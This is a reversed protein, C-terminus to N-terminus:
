PTNVVLGASEMVTQLDPGLDLGLCRGVFARNIANILELNAVFPAIDISPDLVGLIFGNDTSFSGHEFTPVHVQQAEDSFQGWAQTLWSPFADTTLVLHKGPGGKQASSGFLHGDQNLGCEVETMTTALETALSGGYSHGFAAVPGWRASTDLYEGQLVEKLAVRADQQMVDFRTELFAIQAAEGAAAAAAQAELDTEIVQGGPLAVVGSIYPFSLALVAVGHSVLEQIQSAYTVSTNANGPAFLLLPIQKLNAVPADLFAHTHVMPLLDEYPPALAALAPDAIPGRVYWDYEAQNLYPAPGTGGTSAPYYLRGVWERSGTTGDIWATRSADKFALDRVGVCHPGTLDPLMNNHGQTCPTNEEGGCGGLTMTVTILFYAIPPSSM